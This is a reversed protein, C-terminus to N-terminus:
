QPEPAPGHPLALHNDLERTWASRPQRALDFYTEAMKEPLPLGDKDLGRKERLNQFGEEGPMEGLTDPADNM